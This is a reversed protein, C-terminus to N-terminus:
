LPPLRQDAPLHFQLLHRRTEESLAARRLDEMHGSRDYIVPEFWASCTHGDVALWLVYPRLDVDRPQGVAGANLVWPHEHLRTWEDHSAAPPRQLRYGSPGRHYFRARHTHGFVGVNLNRQRLVDVATSHADASSLYTWDGPGFPNAHAFLVAHMSYEDRWPLRRFRATDLRAGVFQMSERIWGPLKAVGAEYGPGGEYLQDHNGRLLVAGRSEIAGEVQDLVVEVDPGYTLLDGLFILADSRKTAHLAATLARANGHVDGIVAVRLTM